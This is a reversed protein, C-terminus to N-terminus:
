EVVDTHTRIIRIETFKRHTNRSGSPQRAVPRLAPTHFDGQRRVPISPARRDARQRSRPIQYQRCQADPFQLLPNSALGSRKFRRPPLSLRWHLFSNELPTYNVFSSWEQCM